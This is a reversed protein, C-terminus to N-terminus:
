GSLLEKKVQNWLMLTKCGGFGMAIAAIEELEEKGIGMGLAKKIHVRTCPECQVGLSLAVAALEKTVVDLAGPQLAKGLFDGYMGIASGSADTGGACCAGSQEEGTDSKQEDSVQEEETTCQSEASVAVAGGRKELVDIRGESADVIRGIVAADKLGGARMERLTNEVRAEPVAVLLGGSTQADYLIARTGESVSDEFHTRAASYEANRENAGSFM